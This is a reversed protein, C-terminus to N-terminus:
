LCIRSAADDIEGTEIEKPTPLGCLRKYVWSTSTGRSGRLPPILHCRLDDHCRDEYRYGDPVTSSVSPEAGWPENKLCGNEQVEEEAQRNGKSRFLRLGLSCDEGVLLPERPNADVHGVEFSETTSRRLLTESDDCAEDRVGEGIM